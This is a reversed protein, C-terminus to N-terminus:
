DCSKPGCDTSLLIPLEVKSCTTLRNMGDPEAPHLIRKKPWGCRKFWGRRAGRDLFNLRITGPVTEWLRNQPGHQRTTLVYASRM